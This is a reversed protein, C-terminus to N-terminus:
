RDFLLDAEPPPAASKVQLAEVRIGLGDCLSSLRAYQKVLGNIIDQRNKREEESLLARSGKVAELDAQEDQLRKVGDRFSSM